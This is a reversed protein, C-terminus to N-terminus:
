IEQDNIREFFFTIFAFTDFCIIPIKRIEENISFYLKISKKKIICVALDLGRMNSIIGAEM